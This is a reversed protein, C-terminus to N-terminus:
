KGRKFGQAKADVGCQKEKPGIGKGGHGKGPFQKKVRSDVGGTKVGKQM